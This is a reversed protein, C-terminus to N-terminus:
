SQNRRKCQCSGRGRRRDSCRCLCNPADNASYLFIDRTQTNSNVGGDNVTFSITRTATSPTESTNTYAVSRLAAQYNAVTASGTLTLTGNTSNWTGTIGNQNTFSLLDQGNAYNGTIAIVASEINVDDIDSITMASTIAVAGTNETYNLATGEISAQIPADNNGTIVIRVIATDFNGNGDSITYSFSDSTTWGSPLSDFATGPNYTFSCDANLTVSAGSAIATAVGIASANGNIATVSISDGDLERDNSLVGAASSVILTTNEGTSYQVRLPVSNPNGGGMVGHNGYTSGDTITTGGQEDFDWYGVLGTENGTLTSSFNSAIQSHTRAVNWVRVDDIEGDFHANTANSRGGIRLDNMSSYVDGITSSQQHTDILEGNVYTSIIGNNFSVAVHTWQNMAVTYGTNRWAWTNNSLAIAYQISGDSHVAVEYEGEKNLIMQTPNSFSEVKFWAEMTMANSMTLSASNAISVFDDVGDFNLHGDDNNAIVPGNVAFQSGFESTEGTTLDTATATVFENARM